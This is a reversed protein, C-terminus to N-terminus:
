ETKDVLTVRKGSLLWAGDEQPKGGEDLALRKSFGPGDTVLTKLKRLLEDGLDKGLISGDAGFYGVVTVKYDKELMEKLLEAQGRGWVPAYVVLGQARCVDELVTRRTSSDSLNLVVGDVELGDLLRQFSEKEGDLGEKAPFMRLRIDLAEASLEALELGSPSMDACILYPVEFGQERAWLLAYHSAIDGLFQVAVKLCIM